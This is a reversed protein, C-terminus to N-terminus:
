QRRRELLPYGLVRDAKEHWEAGLPWLLLATMVLRPPRRGVRSAEQRCPGTDLEAGLNLVTGAARAIAWPMLPDIATTRMTMIFALAPMGCAIQREKEGSLRGKLPDRFLRRQVSARWLAIALLGFPPIPSTTSEGISATM